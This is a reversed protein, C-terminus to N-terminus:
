LNLNELFNLTKENRVIDKTYEKLQERDINQADPFNKIIAEEEKSVEEESVNINEKEAIEKLVLFGIIRKKAAPLLSDYLEKETKNIKKLYDEFSIRFARSVQQKLGDLILGREREILDDPINADSGESIKELIEQRVREKEMREKEKRLREIEEPLVKIEGRKIQFAIKKYDPINKISAQM